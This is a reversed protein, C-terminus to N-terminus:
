NTLKYELFLDALIKTLIANGRYILKSIILLQLNFVKRHWDISKNYNEM